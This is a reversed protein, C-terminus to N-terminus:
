DNFPYVMAYVNSKTNIILWKCGNDDTELHGTTYTDISYCLIYLHSKVGRATNNKVIANYTDRKQRSYSSYCADLDYKKFHKYLVCYHSSRKDDKLITFERNNLTITKM